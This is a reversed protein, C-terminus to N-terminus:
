KLVQLWGKYFVNDKKKIEYYYIADALKDNGWNNRYSTNHFICSGWENYITVECDGNGLCGIDFSDNIGDGNPTILNPLLPNNCHFTTDKVLVDDIFYYAYQGLVYHDIKQIVSTSANDNFNGILLYEAASTAIFTGSIKVWDLTDVIVSQSKLQATYPLLDSQFDWTAAHDLFVLGINNCGYVANEGASVYFEAYYTNGIILPSTLQVQLYERYPYNNQYLIFGCMTNGTRPAQKGFSFMDTSLCSATCTEPVLTSYIDATTYTPLVWNQMSNNFQISSGIFGCPLNSADEFSPNPVLNQSMAPLFVFFSLFFFLTRM